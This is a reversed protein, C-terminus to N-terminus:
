RNNMLVFTQEFGKTKIRSFEIVNINVVIKNFQFTIMLRFRYQVRKM